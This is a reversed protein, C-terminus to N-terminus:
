NRIWETEHFQGDLDVLTMNLNEGDIYLVEWNESNMLLSNTGNYEYTGSTESFDGNIQTLELAFSNDSSFTLYFTDVVSMLNQGALSYVNAKWIGVVSYLCSGDDTDANADYNISSADTCGAIIPSASDGDSCSNLFISFSFILVIFKISSNM